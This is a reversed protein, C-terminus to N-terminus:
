SPFKYNFCVPMSLPLYQKEVKVFHYPNAVVQWCTEGPCPIREQLQVVQAYPTAYIEIVVMAYCLNPRQGAVIAIVVYQSFDVPPVPPPPMINSVHDEWVTEWICPNRIVMTLSADAFDAFCPWNDGAQPFEDLLLPESLPTDPADPSCGYAYGSLLGAEITEFPITQPPIHPTPATHPDLIPKPPNEPGTASSWNRVTPPGGTATGLLLACLASIVAPPVAIDIIAPRTHICRNM